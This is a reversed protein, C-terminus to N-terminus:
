GERDEADSYETCKIEEVGDDEKQMEGGAAMLEVISDLVESESEGDDSVFYDYSPLGRSNLPFFDQPTISQVLTRELDAPNLCRKVPPVWFSSGPLFPLWDPTSNRLVVRKVLEEMMTMREEEDVTSGSCSALDIESFQPKSSCFRPISAGAPARTPLPFSRHITKLFRAM